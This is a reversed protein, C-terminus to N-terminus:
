RCGQSNVTRAGPNLESNTRGDNTHEVERRRGKPIYQFFRKAFKREAM